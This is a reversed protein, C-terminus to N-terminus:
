TPVFDADARVITKKFSKATEFLNNKNSIESVGDIEMGGDLDNEM